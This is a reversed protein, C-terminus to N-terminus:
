LEIVGYRLPKWCWVVLIRVALYPRSRELTWRGKEPVPVRGERQPTTSSHFDAWSTHSFVGIISFGLTSQCQCSNRHQAGGEAAARRRRKRGGDRASCICLDM